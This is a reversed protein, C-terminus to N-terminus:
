VWMPTPYRIIFTSHYLLSGMESAKKRLLDGECKKEKVMILPHLIPNTLLEIKARLRSRSLIFM